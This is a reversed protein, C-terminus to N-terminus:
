TSIFSVPHIPDTGKRIRTTCTICLAPRNLWFGSLLNNVTAFHGSREYVPEIKLKDIKRMM